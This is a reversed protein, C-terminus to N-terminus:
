KNFIFVCKICVPSVPHLGTEDIQVVYQCKTTVRKVGSFTGEAVFNPDDEILIHDDSLLLYFQNPQGAPVLASVQNHTANTDPFPFNAELKGGNVQWTFKVFGNVSSDMTETGGPIAKGNANFLQCVAKNPGLVVGDGGIMVTASGDDAHVTPALSAGGSSQDAYFGSALLGIFLVVIAIKRKM